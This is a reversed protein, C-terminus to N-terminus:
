YNQIKKDFKMFIMKWGIGWIENSKSWVEAKHFNKFEHLAGLEIQVFGWSVSPFRDFLFVVSMHVQFAMFIQLFEIQKM